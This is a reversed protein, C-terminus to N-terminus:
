ALETEKAPIQRATKLGKRRTLVLRHRISSRANRTRGWKDAPIEVQGTGDSEAREGAM